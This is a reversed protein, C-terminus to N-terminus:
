YGAMNENYGTTGDDYGYDTGTQSNDGTGYDTGSQSVGNGGSQEQTPTPNAAGGGSKLMSGTEMDPMRQGVRNIIENSTYLVQESPTYDQDDYLFEHLEQVNNDLNVPIVVSGMGGITDTTKEFPFGASDVLKYDLFSKAYGLIDTLSLSTKIKPFVSDIIENITALNSKQVKEVIKEIVIRQRETRTFDGGATSRIRAYTTAQAGDLLQKGAKTVKNAEKGAVRATEKIYKNLPEIEEEMIEIEVGDLLDISEAIAAFDVTVYDHINLDLNTNLMNIAQTPGGYSYAANCKSFEVYNQDANIDLMTDRYVSSMKIEKTKNDLSVVIICDTRTGMELEGERSDIGFLAFTTYGDGFNGARDNVVIDEVPIEETDLKKLKSAAYVGTSALLCLLVAVICVAARKGASLRTFWNGRKRRRGRRRRKEYAM